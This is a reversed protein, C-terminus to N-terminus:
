FALGLPPGPTCRINNKPCNPTGRRPRQSAATATATPAVTSATSYSVLKWVGVFSGDAILPGAALSTVLAIAVLLLRRIRTM